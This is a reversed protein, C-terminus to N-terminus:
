IAREIALEDHDAGLSVLWQNAVEVDAHRVFHEERQEIAQGGMQARRTREVSVNLTEPSETVAPDPAPVM